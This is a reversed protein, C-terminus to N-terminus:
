FLFFDICYVCLNEREDSWTKSIDPNSYAKKNKNVGDFSLPSTTCVDWARNEVSEINQVQYTYDYNDKCIQLYYSTERAEPCGYIRWSNKGKTRPTQPAIMRRADM